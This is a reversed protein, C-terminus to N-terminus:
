ESKIGWQMVEQALKRSLQDALRTFHDRYEPLKQVVLDGNSYVEAIRRDNPIELLIPIGQQHCFRRTRDDGLDARNIVVGFQLELQQLVDVSLMLDHLGFPTSEAVLIVFDTGNVATVVPCSTGPPADLITVKSMDITQKVIRILPPSTPVGIDLCGASIDLHMCSWRDVVGIRRRVESLAEQPCAMVCAGCSHCLEQFVIPAGSPVAIANFQCADACDGCGDCKDTDVQPVPVTVPQQTKTDATFFLHVNPEEVDCDILQVPEPWVMALNVVVTTKGTGGKGSAVAITPRRHSM